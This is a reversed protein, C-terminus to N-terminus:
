GSFFTKESVVLERRGEVRVAEWTVAWGSLRSSGRARLFEAQPRIRTEEDLSVGAAEREWFFVCGWGRLAEVGKREAKM